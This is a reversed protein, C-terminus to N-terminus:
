PRVRKGERSPASNSQSKASVTRSDSHMGLMKAPTSTTAEPLVKGFVTTEQPLLYRAVAASEPCDLDVDVINHENGLLIGINCPGGFIQEAAETTYDSQHWNKTEPGKKKLPIFVPKAGYELMWKATELPTTAEGIGTKLTADLQRSDQPMSNQGM